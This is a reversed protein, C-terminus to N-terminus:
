RPRTGSARSKRAIPSPLASARRRRRGVRRAIIEVLTRFTGTASLLSGILVGFGILLGVEAMIEALDPRDASDTSTM